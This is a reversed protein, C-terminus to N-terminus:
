MGFTKKIEKALKEGDKYKDIAGKSEGFTDKATKFLDSWGFGGSAEELQEESIKKANVDKEQLNSGDNSKKEKKCSDSNEVHKDSTNM